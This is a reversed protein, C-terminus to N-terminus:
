SQAPQIGTSVTLGVEEPVDGEASLPALGIQAQGVDPLVISPEESSYRRDAEEPGLYVHLAGEVGVSVSEGARAGEGVLGTGREEVFGVASGELGSM